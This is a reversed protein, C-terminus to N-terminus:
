NRSAGQEGTRWDRVGPEDLWARASAPDTFIRMPRRAAALMGLVRAYKAHEPPVVVALPGPQHVSHMGRMRVGLALIDDLGMAAEGHSGDFLKRYSDAQAGVVVDLFTEMEQREVGGEAVATMLRDKSDITWYLPM